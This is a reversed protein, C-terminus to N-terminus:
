EKRKPKGRTFLLATVNDTGGNELAEAILADVANEMSTATHLLSAIREDRVLGSLGDTCLLLVQDKALDVEYLDCLVEPDIGIARTILNKQPHNRADEESIKGSRMMEEVYSHDETLREAGNTGIRYARSDGVNVITLREETVVAGVLTTGMGSFEPQARSLLYVKENAKYAAKVLMDQMAQRDPKADKIHEKLVEMFTDTAFRSAVNGANAGGMGDCVVLLAAHEQLEIAFADQNTARVCGIDTKGYATM